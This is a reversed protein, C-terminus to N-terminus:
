PSEITAGDITGTDIAALVPELQLGALYLAGGLNRDFARTQSRVIQLQLRDGPRTLEVDLMFPQWSFDASPLDLRARMPGEVERLHLSPLSRTTLQQARWWGSLRYRGPQPAPFRLLPRVLHINENGDFRLRLAAPTGAASDPHHDLIAAPLNETVRDLEAGRPLRLDWGFSGLADPEFAFQGGPINGPRYAPDLQQWLAIVAADDGAALLSLIYERVAEDNPARPQDLRQWVTRALEPQASIRAHRMAQVLYDEGPPLIRDLRQEPDPLWRVAIYLAADVQRPQDELWLKLYDAVLDVDGFHQALNVARWRLERHRPQIAIAAELRRRSLAPDPNLDRDIRARLLWRWPDLPYRTLQWALAQSAAEPDLRWRADLQGALDRGALGGWPQRAPLTQLRTIPDQEAAQRLAMYESAAIWMAALLPLTWVLAPASRRLISQM